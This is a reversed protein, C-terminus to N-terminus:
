SIRAREGVTDEFFHHLTFTQEAGVKQGGQAVLYLVLALGGLVPLGWAVSVDKKLMWLACAWISLFLALIGIAAYGYFFASWVSPAPGYIGNIQTGEETEELSLNLQPSWYHQEEEPIRLTIHGEIVSGVCPSGPRSLRERFMEEVRRPEYYVMREFRPRIRFSSM